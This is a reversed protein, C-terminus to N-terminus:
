VIRKIKAWRENVDIDHRAKEPPTDHCGCLVSLSVFARNASDADDDDKDDDEDIDDISTSVSSDDNSSEFPM